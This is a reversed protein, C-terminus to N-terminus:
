AQAIAGSVVLADLEDHTFGADRLV